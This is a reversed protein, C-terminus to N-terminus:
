LLTGNINTAYGKSFRAALFLPRHLHKVSKFASPMAFSFLANDSLTQVETFDIRWDSISKENTTLYRDM